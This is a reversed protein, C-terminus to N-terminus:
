YGQKNMVYIDARGIVDQFISSNYPNGTYVNLEYKGVLPLTYAVAGGSRFERLYHTSGGDVQILDIWYTKPAQNGISLVFNGSTSKTASLKILLESLPYMVDEVIQIDLNSYPKMSCQIPAAGYLYTFSAGIVIPFYNVGRSFSKTVPIKPYKGTLVVNDGFYTKVQVGWIVSDSVASVDIANCFMQQNESWSLNQAHVEGKSVRDQTLYRSKEEHTNTVTDVYVIEVGRKDVNALTDNAVQIKRAFEQFTALDVNLRAAEQETLNFVYRNNEFTVYSLLEEQAQQYDLFNEEEMDNCSLTFLGMVVIFLYLTKM